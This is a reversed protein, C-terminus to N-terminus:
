STRGRDFGAAFGREFAGQVRFAVREPRRGAGAWNGCRDPGGRRPMDGERHAEDRGLNNGGRGCHGGRGHGKHHGRGRPIRTSEDWGFERALQELTRMNTQLDEEPVANRVRDRIGEVLEGLRQKATRGEETLAWAGQQEAVWGLEALRALSRRKDFRKPGREFRATREAHPEAEPISTGPFSTGDIRNLMRWERRGVGESEFAEAFASKMLHDTAKLWYGLPRSNTNKHENNKHDTNM